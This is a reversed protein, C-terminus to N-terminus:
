TGMIRRNEEIFADAAASMTVRDAAADFEEDFFPEQEPSAPDPVAYIVLHYRM